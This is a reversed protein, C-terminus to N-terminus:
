NSHEKRPPDICYVSSLLAASAKAIALETVPRFAAPLVRLLLILDERAQLTLLAVEAANKKSGTTLFFARQMTLTARAMLAAVEAPDPTDM